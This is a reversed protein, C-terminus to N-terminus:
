RWGNPLSSLYPLIAMGLKYLLPYVQITSSGDFTFCSDRVWTHLILKLLLLNLMFCFFVWRNESIYQCYCKQWTTGLAKKEMFCLFVWRNESIYQFYCKQWTTGLAKKEIFCIFVWMNESIYQCYRLVEALHHGPGEERHLLLLSVQEWQHVPLLVEALHHGPGEEGHLLPLWDEHVDQEPCWPGGTELCWLFKSSPLCM